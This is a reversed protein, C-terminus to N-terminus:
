ATRALGEVVRPHLQGFFRIRATRGDHSLVKGNIQISGGITLHLFDYDDEWEGNVEANCGDSTIDSIAIPFPIKGCDCLGGLGSPSVEVKSSANGPM